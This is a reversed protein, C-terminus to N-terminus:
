AVSGAAGAGAVAQAARGATLAAAIEEAPYTMIEALTPHLHPMRMVDYVTANFYLLAISEHILDSAEAGVIGVGLIRGDDPDALMKVFGKTLGVSIAKGLDDFPYSGKLYPKGAAILDRERRGAVAVQPDTFVTHADVLAYDAKRQESSFANRAALEGEYIAVHVLQFRGAVDGAAFIDPNSTRLYADIGVGYRDYTVGARQLDLGAVNPSRGLAFFIEEAEAEVVRGEHRFALVKRGERLFARELTTGTHVTIGEERFYGTLADGLDHDESSLLRPSRQIFTTAVGMRHMFQGLEAAVYGGGLVIVSKPPRELELVEDSTLYGVEALGPVDEPGSVVSGTAILFRQGHLRQGGVEIEHGSLFRAPGAFVPFDRIGEIRYDAFGEIIRRKREVMRPWDYGEVRVQVGLEGAERALQALEGSRLLTKSPMCGRLICLGGLPGPDVFAVRKGLERATRAAAYGASGAGVM